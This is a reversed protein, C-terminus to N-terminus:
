LLLVRMNAQFAMIVIAVAGFGFVACVLVLCEGAVSLHEPPPGWNCMAALMAEGRSGIWHSSFFQLLVMSGM